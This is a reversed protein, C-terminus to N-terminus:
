GACSRMHAWGAEGEVEWGGAHGVVTEGAQVCLWECKASGGLGRQVATLRRLSQDALTATILEHVKLCPAGDDPGAALVSYM